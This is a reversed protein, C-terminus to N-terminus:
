IYKSSPRVYEKALHINPLENIVSYTGDHSKHVVADSTLLKRLNNFVNTTFIKNTRRRRAIQFLSKIPSLALFMPWHVQQM